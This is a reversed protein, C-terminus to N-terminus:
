KLGMLSFLLQSLRSWLHADTTLHVVAPSFGNISPASSNIFEMLGSDMGCGHPSLFVAKKKKRKEEM